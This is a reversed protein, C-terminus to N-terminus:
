LNNRIRSLLAMEANPVYTDNEFDADAKNDFYDECEKLLEKLEAIEKEKGECGYIAGSIFTKRHAELDETLEKHTLRWQEMIPFRKAAEDMVETPIQEM